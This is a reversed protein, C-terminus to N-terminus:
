VTWETQSTEEKRDRLETCGSAEVEKGAIHGPRYAQNGLLM